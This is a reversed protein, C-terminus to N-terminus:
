EANIILLSEESNLSKIKQGHGNYAFSNGCCNMGDAMGTNNVLLAPMKYIGSIFQLRKEANEMGKKHKAVSALYLDPNELLIDQLHENVVIEYCIALKIKKQRFEIISDGKRSQFFPVEDEHLYQKFYFQIDAKPKFIAMAIYIQNNIKLPLGIGIALKYKTSYNKFIELRNDNEKFALSKALKPEYNTLSLEPFIIFDAKEEAARTIFDLHKKINVEIKGSESQLQALAIKM